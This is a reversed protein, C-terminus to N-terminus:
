AGGGPANHRSRTPERRSTTPPAAAGPPEGRTVWLVVGILWAFGILYGAVVDSPLHVGALVRAPGMGLIVLLAVVAADPRRREVALYALYGFLATAYTVHGSPFNLAPEPRIRDWLPTAGWAHKLATNAAAAAAALVVGIARRAGFRRRVFWTAVLVTLVAVGGTGIAAFFGAIQDFGQPTRPSPFRAAVARDGPLPGVVQLWVRMAVVIAALLLAVAALAWRTVPEHVLEDLLGPVDGSRAHEAARHAIRGTRPQTARPERGHIDRQRRPM